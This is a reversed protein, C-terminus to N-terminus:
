STKVLFRPLSPCPLRNPFSAVTDEAASYLSVSNLFSEPQLLCPPKIKLKSGNFVSCLKLFHRPM